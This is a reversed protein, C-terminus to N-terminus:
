RSWTVVLKASTGGARSKDAVSWCDTGSSGANNQSMVNIRGEDWLPRSVIEQVATTIDITQLGAGPTTTINTRDSTISWDTPLNGSDPQEAVDTAECGMDFDPSGYEFLLDITLIASDITSGQPVAGGSSFSFATVIEATGIYSHFGLIDLQLTGDSSWTGDTDHGDDDTDDLQQTFVGGFEGGDAWFNVLMDPLAGTYGSDTLAEVWSDNGFLDYEAEFQRLMDARSGTYGQTALSNYCDDVRSM